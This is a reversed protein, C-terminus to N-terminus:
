GIAEGKMQRLKEIIPLDAPTGLNELIAIAAALGRLSDSGAAKRVTEDAVLANFASPDNQAALERVAAPTNPQEDYWRKAARLDFAVGRVQGKTAAQIWQQTTPLDQLRGDTSQKPSTKTQQLVAGWNVSKRFPALDGVAALIYGTSLACVAAGEGPMPPWGGTRSQAKAMHELARQVPAGWVDAKRLAKIVLATEFTTGYGGDDNQMTMLYLKMESLPRSMHPLGEDLLTLMAAATGMVASRENQPRPYGTPVGTMANPGQNWLALLAALVPSMPQM